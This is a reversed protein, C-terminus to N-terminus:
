FQPKAADARVARDFNNLMEMEDLAHVVLEPHSIELQTNQSTPTGARPRELVIGVTILLCAAASVPLLHRILLPRFPQMVREWWSARTEIRHYLRRDFEASIAPAEWEDLVSWVARQGAVFDRCASCTNLHQELNIAEASELGRGSYELLL